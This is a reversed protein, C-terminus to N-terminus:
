SCINVLCRHGVGRWQPGTTEITVHGNNLNQAMKLLVNRFAINNLLSDHDCM